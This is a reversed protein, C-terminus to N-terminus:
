AASSGADCDTIKAACHVRHLGVAGRWLMKILWWAVLGGVASCLILLLTNVQKNTGYFSFAAHNGWQLVLLVVGALLVLGSFIVRVYFKLALLKNM